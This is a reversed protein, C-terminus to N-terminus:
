FLRQWLRNSQRSEQKARGASHKRAQSRQFQLPLDFGKSALQASWHIIPQQDPAVRSQWFWLAQLLQEAFRTVLKLSIGQFPM